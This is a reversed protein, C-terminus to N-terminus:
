KEEKKELRMRGGSSLQYGNTIAFSMYCDELFERVESPTAPRTTVNGIGMIDVDVDCKEEVVLGSMILDLDAVGNIMGETSIGVLNGKRTSEDWKEAKEKWEEAQVIYRQHEKILAHYDREMERLEKLEPLALIKNVVDTHFRQAHPIEAVANLLIERLESM